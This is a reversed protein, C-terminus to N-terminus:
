RRGCCTAAPRRRRSRRRSRPRCVLRRGPAAAPQAAAVAAGVAADVACRGAAAAVAATPGAAAPIAAAPGAAASLAAAADAAALAAAAVAAAIAPQVAAPDAAAAVAAAIAAAAVAAALAPSPPPPSPPPAPPPSPPPPSPPPSPPPAPPPKPALGPAYPPPTPPPSPPPPSPPPSPPPTPPPSPPPPSPSAPPTMPPPDLLFRTERLEYLMSGSLQATGRGAHIVLTPSAVIPQQSLLVGAPLRATLTEPATIEYDAFQPVTITLTAADERYLDSYELGAGVVANWGHPEDQASTLSALLERTLDAGTAMGLTPTWEDNYVDIALKVPPPARIDDATLHQLAVLRVVARGATPEIVFSPTVLIRQGSAVAAAPLTLSITEPATIDYTPVRPITVLVLTGTRAVNLERLAPVVIANWGAPESQASRVGSLLARTADPVIHRHGVLSAFTDNTIAM